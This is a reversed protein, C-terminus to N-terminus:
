ASLIVSGAKVVVVTTVYVGVHANSVGHTRAEPWIAGTVKWRSAVWVDEAIGAAAGTEMRTLPVFPPVIYMSVDDGRPGNGSNDKVSEAVVLPPVAVEAAAVSGTTDDLAMGGFLVNADRFGLLVIGDVGVVSIVRVDVLRTCV